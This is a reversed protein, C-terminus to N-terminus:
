NVLFPNEWTFGVWFGVFDAWRRESCKAQRKGPGTPTGPPAARLAARRAGLAALAKIAAAPTGNLHFFRSRWNRDNKEHVNAWFVIAVTFVVHWPTPKM